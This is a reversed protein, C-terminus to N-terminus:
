RVKELLYITLLTERSLLSLTPIQTSPQLLISLPVRSKDKAKMKDAYALAALMPTSVQLFQELTKKM